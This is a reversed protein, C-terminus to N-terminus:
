LSDCTCLIFLALALSFVLIARRERESETEDIASQVPWNLGAYWWCTATGNFSGKNYDAIFVMCYLCYLMLYAWEEVPRESCYDKILSTGDCHSTTREM